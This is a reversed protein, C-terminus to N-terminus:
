SAESSTEPDEPAETSAEVQGLSARADKLDGVLARATALGTAYAVAEAAEICGDLQRRLWEDRNKWSDIRRIIELTTKNANNAMRM